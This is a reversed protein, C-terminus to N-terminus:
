NRKSISLTRSMGRPGALGRPGAPGESGDRGDRGDKGDKGDKGDRGSLLYYLLNSLINSFIKINKLIKLSYNLFKEQLM